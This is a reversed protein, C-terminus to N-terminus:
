RVAWGAATQPCGSGPQELPGPDPASHLLPDFAESHAAPWGRCRGWGPGFQWLSPGSETASTGPSSDESLLVGAGGGTAKLQPKIWSETYTWPTWDSCPSWNGWPCPWAWCSVKAGTWVSGRPWAPCTLKGLRCVTVTFETDDPPWYACPSSAFLGAPAYYRWFDEERFVVTVLGM